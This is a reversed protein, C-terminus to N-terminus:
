RGRAARIFHNIRLNEFDRSVARRILRQPRQRHHGPQTLCTDRMPSGDHTLVSLPVVESWQFKALSYCEVM